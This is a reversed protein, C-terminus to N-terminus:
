KLRSQDVKSMLLTLFASLQLPDPLFWFTTKEHLRSMGHRLLRRVHRIRTIGRSSAGASQAGLSVWFRGSVSWWLTWLNRMAVPNFAPWWRMASFAREQDTSAKLSRAASFTLLFEESRHHKKFILTWKRDGIQITFIKKGPIISQHWWSRWRSRHQGGTPGTPHEMTEGDMGSNSDMGDDDMGNNNDM